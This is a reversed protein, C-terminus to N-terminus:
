KAAELREVRKTLGDLKQEVSDRWDNARFAFGCSAALRERRDRMEKCLVKLQEGNEISVKGCSELMERIELLMRLAQDDAKRAM